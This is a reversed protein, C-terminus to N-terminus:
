RVWWRLSLCFAGLPVCLTGMGMVAAGVTEVGQWFPDKAHDALTGLLNASGGLIPAAAIGAGLICFPAVRQLMTHKGDSM